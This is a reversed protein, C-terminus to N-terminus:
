WLRWARHHRQSRITIVTMHYFYSAKFLPRSPPLPPGGESRDDGGNTLNDARTWGQTKGHPQLALCISGVFPHVSLSARGEATVKSECSGSKILKHSKIKHRESLSYSIIFNSLQTQQGGYKHTPTTHPAENQNGRGQRAPHDKTDVNDAQRDAWWNLMQGLTERGVKRQRDSTRVKLTSRHM